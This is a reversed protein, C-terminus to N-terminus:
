QGAFQDLYIPAVASLAAIADSQLVRTQIANLVGAGPLLGSNALGFATTTLGVVAPTGAFYTIQATQVPRLAGIGSLFIRGDDYIHVGVTSAGTGNYATFIPLKIVNAM